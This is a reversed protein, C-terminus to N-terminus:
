VKAQTKGKAKDIGDEVTRRAESRDQGNTGTNGAGAGGAEQERGSTIGDKVEEEKKDDTPATVDVAGNEFQSLLYQLMQIAGNNMNISAALEQQQSKMIDLQNELQEKTLGETM